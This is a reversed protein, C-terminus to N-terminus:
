TIPAAFCGSTTGLVVNDLLTSATQLRPVNLSGTPASAGEVALAPSLLAGAAVFGLLTVVALTTRRYAATRYM